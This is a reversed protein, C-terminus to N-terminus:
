IILDPGPTKGKIISTCANEVEVITLKPWKWNQPRYNSWDPSPAEPPTPFLTTRLSKCKGEFSSELGITTTSKIEPIKDVLSSNTYSFAKFISKPDNKELFQNWYDRKAKKIAQFYDNRAILYAQKISNSKTFKLVRQKRIMTTRLTKLDGNWWPKPKAGLKRKPISKEAAERIIDTFELAASDLLQIEFDQNILIDISDITYNNFEDSNLIRSNSL